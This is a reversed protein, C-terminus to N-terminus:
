PNTIGHEPCSTGLLTAELEEGSGAVRITFTITGQINAGNDYDYTITSKGSATSWTDSTTAYGGTNTVWVDVIDQATALDDASLSSLSPTPVTGGTGTSSVSSSISAYGESKIGIFVTYYSFEEDVIPCTGPIDMKLKFGNAWGSGESSWDATPTLFVNIIKSYGEDFLAKVNKGNFTIPSGDEDKWDETVTIVYDGEALTKYGLAADGTQTADPKGYSLKTIGIDALAEIDYSSLQTISGPKAANAQYAATTGDVLDEGTSVDLGAHLGNPLNGTIAEYQRLTRLTGAANYTDLGALAEEKNGTLAPLLVAALAALLGIVILLEILTFGAFKITKTM